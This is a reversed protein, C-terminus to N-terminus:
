VNRMLVNIIIHEKQKTLLGDMTGVIPRMPAMLYGADRVHKKNQVHLKDVGIIKMSVKLIGTLDLITIWRGVMAVKFLAIFSM